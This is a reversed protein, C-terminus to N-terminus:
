ECQALRIWDMMVQWFSSDNGHRGQCHCTPGLDGRGKERLIFSACAAKSGACAVCALLFFISRLGDGIRPAIMM